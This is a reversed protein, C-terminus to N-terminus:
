RYDPPPRDDVFADALRRRLRAPLGTFRGRVLLWLAAIVGVVVGAAAGRGLAADATALETLFRGAPDDVDVDDVLREAVLLLLLPTLVAGTGVALVALRAAGDVSLALAVVVVLAGATAAGIAFGAPGAVGGDGLAGVTASAVDAVPGVVALGAFTLIFPTVLLLPAVVAVLVVSRARPV